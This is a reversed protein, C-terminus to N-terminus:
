SKASGRLGFTTRPPVRMDRMASPAPSGARTPGPNGGGASGGRSWVIWGLLGGAFLVSAIMGYRNMGDMIGADRATPEGGPVYFWAPNSRAYTVQVPDGTEYRDWTSNAVEISQNLTTGDQITFRVDLWYVWIGGATPRVSDIRKQAITGTAVVPEAAFAAMKQRTEDAAVHGVFTFIASFVLLVGLALGVQANKSLANSSSM